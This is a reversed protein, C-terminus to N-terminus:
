RTRRQPIPPVNETPIRRSPGGQALQIGGGVVYEQGRELTVPKDLEGEPIVGVKSRGARGGKELNRVFNGMRQSENDRGALNRQNQQRVRQQRKLRGATERGSPDNPDPPLLGSQRRRFTDLEQREEFTLDDVQGMAQRAARTVEPNSGVADIYRPGLGRGEDRSDYITRASEQVLEAESYGGEYGGTGYGAYQEQLADYEDLTIEEFIRGFNRKYNIDGVLSAPIQDTDGPQGRGELIVRYPDRQNGLRFRAQHPHLNRITKDGDREGVPTRRKAKKQPKAYGRLDHQRPDVQVPEDEFDDDVEDFDEDEDYQVQAQIEDNLKQAQQERLLDVVSAFGAEVSQELGDMRENLARVDKDVASITRGRNATTRKQTGAM